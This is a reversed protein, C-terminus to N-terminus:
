GPRKCEAGNVDHPPCLARDLAQRLSTPNEIWGQMVEPPITPMHIAISALFQATQNDYGITRM